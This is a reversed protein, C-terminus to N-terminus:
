KRELTSQPSCFSSECLMICSPLGIRWCFVMMGIRALRPSSRKECLSFAFAIQGFIGRFGFVIPPVEDQKEHIAAGVDSTIGIAESLEHLLRCSDVVSRGSSMFASMARTSARSLSNFAGAACARPAFRNDVTDDRAFRPIAGDARTM